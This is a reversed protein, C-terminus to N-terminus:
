GAPCGLEEWRWQVVDVAAHIGPTPPGAAERLLAVAHVKRGALILRDVEARADGSLRGWVIDDM